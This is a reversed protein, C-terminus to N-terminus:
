PKSKGGKGDGKSGPDTAAALLGELETVRAKLAANEAKLAAGEAVEEASSKASDVFIEDDAKLIAFTKQGIAFEGEHLRGPPDDDQDLVLVERFNGNGRPWAEGARRRDVFGERDKASVRYKKGSAAM